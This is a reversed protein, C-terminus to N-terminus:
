KPLVIGLQDAIREYEEKSFEVETAEEEYHLFFVREILQQYRNPRRSKRGARPEGEPATMSEEAM